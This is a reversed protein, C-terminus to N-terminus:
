TKNVATSKRLGHARDGSKGRADPRPKPYQVLRSARREFADRSALLSEQKKSILPYHRSGALRAHIQECAQESTIWLVPDVARLDL